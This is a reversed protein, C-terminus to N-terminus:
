NSLLLRFPQNMLEWDQISRFLLSKRFYDYEYALRLIRTIMISEVQGTNYTGYVRQLSISLINIFDHGCCIQWPDQDTDRLQELQSQIHEENIDFRKSNNKVTKILDSKSFELNRMNIFKKFDLGEFKLNLGNQTSFWRLYGIHVAIELLTDLVDRGTKQVIMSLKNESAFELLFNNFAPSQLIMTELDHTDTLLINSSLPENQEVIMFDADLIALFGQFNDQELIEITNIINNKNDTEFPVTLRCENDDIFRQYVLKDYKGEVILFTGNYSQRQLRITNATRNPTILNRM